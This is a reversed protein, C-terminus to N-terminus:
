IIDQKYGHRKKTDNTEICARLYIAQCPIGAISFHNSKKRNNKTIKAIAFGLVGFFYRFVLFCGFVAFFVSISLLLRKMVM